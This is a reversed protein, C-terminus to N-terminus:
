GERDNQACRLIEEEAHQRSGESREPHCPGSEQSRTGSEQRPCIRMKARVGPNPVLDSFTIREVLSFPFRQHFHTLGGPGRCSRANGQGTVV